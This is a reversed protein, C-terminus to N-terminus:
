EGGILKQGNQPIPLQITFLTGKGEESEVTIEGNFEKIIKYVMSMGLGTGNAKTTYYPEFVRSVTEKNMGCGNDSIALIYKDNKYLTRIAFVKKEENEALAHISNQVINIFVEKFLKPDLLIRNNEESLKCDVFIQKAEFEPKFFSMYDQILKDPNTLEMNASVPRVAVLFDVVIKNLRDIEDNIVTLYDEMFKQPPLVGDGERKKKIAKQMLQIHISIAGLPNKIEHAVSAAINTLGALAEMRHLLIEKNKEQTIDYCRVISGANENNMMFPSVSIEIFRVSGGSTTISYQETVNIKNEEYCSKLFNRIEENGVYTWLPNKEYYSNEPNESFPFLCEAATNITLINWQRDVTILGTNLSQIISKYMENKDSLEGVLNEIQNSSLKSLKEKVRKSFVGM